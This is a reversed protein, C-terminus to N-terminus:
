WAGCIEFIATISIATWLLKKLGNDYIRQVKLIQEGAENYVPQQETSKLNGLVEYTYTQM